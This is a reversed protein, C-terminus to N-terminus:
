CNEKAYDYLLYIFNTAKKKLIYLYFGTLNAEAMQCQLFYEVLVFGEKQTIQYYGGSSLFTPMLSNSKKSSLLEFEVRSNNRDVIRHWITESRYIPKQEFIYKLNEWNQGEGILTIKKAGPALAVIHNYQYQLNLLNQPNADIKFSGYFSYSTNNIDFNYQIDGKEQSQLTNTCLFITTLVIIIHKGPSKIM